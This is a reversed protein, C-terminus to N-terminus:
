RKDAAGPASEPSPTNRSVSRVRGAIWCVLGAITVQLLPIDPLTALVFLIRMPFYKQDRSGVHPLWVAMERLAITGIGVLGLAALASGLLRLRAPPWRRMVWVAPPALLLVWFVHLAALAQVPPM